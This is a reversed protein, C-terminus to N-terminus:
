LNRFLAPDFRTDWSFRLHRAEMILENASLAVRGDGWTAGNAKRRKEETKLYRYVRMKPASQFDVSRIGTRRPIIPDVKPFAKLIPALVQYHLHKDPVGDPVAVSRMPTVHRVITFLDLTLEDMVGKAGGGIPHDKEEQNIKETESIAERAAAEQSKFREPDYRKRSIADVLETEMYHHHDDIRRRIEQINSLRNLAYVLAEIIKEHVQDRDCLVPMRDLNRFVGEQVFVAVIKTRLEKWTPDEQRKKWEALMFARWIRRDQETWENTLSIPKQPM